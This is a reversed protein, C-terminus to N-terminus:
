DQDVPRGHALDIVHEGIRMETAGFEVTCWPSDLHARTKPAGSDDLDVPVDDVTFLGERPLRLREGHRTPYEIHDEGFEPRGLGQVFKTFDGDRERDGVVCVWARPDGAPRAEQGANPGTRLPVVGGDAALAVYGDGRRVALWPGDRTWEDMTSLPAWAHTYGMPDDDPIRYLALVTDRHQRARPLIRNGAWANPRASAHTAANPAHTVFVQSEPGLCANWILEQLGPQWPRYDEVTSLSVHPTRYVVLDSAYPRSLLDHEARYSGRYSQKALVVDNQPEGPELVEPPIRYKRATALVVAPLTAENLAGVGWCLWRIPATEEFRASRQTKVYSRGHACPYSGRWSNVGLTFLAKDLLGAALAVLDADEGFEVLSVLALVDIALYATSDFESFGGSLKRRLWERAMDGGHRAHQEGTMGSNGFTDGAFMSGTLYEATHWVMQHNETFYCMADRGPQDIWFKMGLLATRVGERLGPAWNETRHLLHLLGLVEFDACDARRDVMSLADAVDVDEIVRRRDLEAAALAAGCGSKSAAHTLLESRWQDASGAQTDRSVRPLLGVPLDRYVPTGAVGVRLVLEDTSLMSASGTPADTVLDALDVEVTGDRLRVHRTRGGCGVTLAAGRPGHLTVVPETLGWRRVAVESLLREAVAGTNEDAGPSPIVVRAPLGNIRLRLVQRCERFGVQWSQVIVTSVGAPLWPTVEHEIPEMYSVTDAHLLLKGNVYLAFPGTCAIRMTRREAQDVELCTAALVSRYAPTFCFESADVLGDEATHVREWQGKHVTGGPGLYTIEGGESVDPLPQELRLPRLRYLKRKLPTSDPGNTLVWRGNEGWSSGKASMLKALEEVPEAWSPSILWDRVAAREDLEHVTRDM